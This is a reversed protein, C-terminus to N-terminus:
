KLPPHRCITARYTTSAQRGSRLSASTANEVLPVITFKEMEKLETIMEKIKERTDESQQIEDTFSGDFKVYDVDLHKLTNFPDLSCGFRSISM